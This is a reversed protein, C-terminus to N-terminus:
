CPLPNDDQQKTEPLGNYREWGHCFDALRPHHLVSDSTTDTAGNMEPTYRIGPIGNQQQGVAVLEGNQVFYRRM